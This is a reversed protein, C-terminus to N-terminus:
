RLVWRLYIDGHRPVLALCGRYAFLVLSPPVLRANRPVLRDLIAAAHGLDCGRFGFFCHRLAALSPHFDGVVASGVAHGSHRQEAMWSDVRFHVTSSFGVDEGSFFHPDLRGFSLDLASRCVRAPSVAQAQKPFFPQAAQPDLGFHDSLNRQHNRLGSIDLDAWALARDRDHQHFHGSLSGNNGPQAFVDSAAHVSLRGAMDDTVHAM